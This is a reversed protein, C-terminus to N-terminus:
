QKDSIRRLSYEANSNLLRQWAMCSPAWRFGNSKLTDRTKEDPKGDFILQLRMEAKNRIVQAPKGNISVTDPEADDGAAEQEAKAAQAKPTQNKLHQFIVAKNGSGRIQDIILAYKHEATLPKLEPKYTECNMGFRNEGAEDIEFNLLEKYHRKGDTFDLFLNFYWHPEGPNWESKSIKGGDWLKLIEDYTKAGNVTIHSQQEAFEEPALQLLREKLRRIEASKNGYPDPTGKLTEIKAKIREVANKDDSYITGANYRIGDIEDLIYDPNERMLTNERANQKQKARVPFNAPGAILVSPVRACNAYLNNLWELKKTKYQTLLHDVKEIRESPASSKILREKAEAAREDADKCYSEYEASASGPRYDSFSMMEKARRANQELSEYM